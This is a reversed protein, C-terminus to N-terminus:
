IVSVCVTLDNFDWDSDKNNLTDEFGFHNMGLLKLHGPNMDISPNSATHVAGDSTILVPAYLGYDASELTWELSTSGSESLNIPQENPDILSQRVMNQFAESGDANIGNISM